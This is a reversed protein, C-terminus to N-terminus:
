GRQQGMIASSRCLLLGGSLMGTFSATGAEDVNSLNIDVTITDDITSTDTGGAADKGDHVRVTVEYTNKTAEFNYTVGSRTRIRGDSTDITFSGSDTGTLSYTLTDDDSDSAEVRTGVAVGGGTNELLTRSTSDGDDFTPPSNSAGVTGRAASTASKGSGHDDTYSVIVRLYQGVDAAVPTYTMSTGNTTINSFGSTQASSRQWQYSRSSINGDPDSLSATLMSGGSLTGTFSALGAEDVNSLNITVDITADITSTDANGDADKGDHVSVTVQYTNKSAEFNYTVGTTTKIQGTTSDIDFSTADTGGLSYTLTDGDGDSDSATVAAGVNTESSSNEPVTRTTSPGDNFAPPSNTATLSERTVTVTYTETASTDEATVEVTIVNEGVALAVTGDTDVTGGLKIVATADPDSLEPTVM